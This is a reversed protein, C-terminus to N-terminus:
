PKVGEVCIGQGNAVRSPHEIHEIGPIRSIHLPMREIDAFGATELLAELSNEDYMWKHQHFDAVATYWRYILNGHPPAPPRM